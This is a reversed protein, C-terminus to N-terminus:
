RSAYRGLCNEQDRSLEKGLQDKKICRDFCFAHHNSRLTLSSMLFEMPQVREM